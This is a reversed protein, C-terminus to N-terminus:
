CLNIKKEKSVKNLHRRELGMCYLGDSGLHTIVGDLDQAAIIENQCHKVIDFDFKYPDCGTSFSVSFFRSGKLYHRTKLFYSVGRLLLEKLIVISEKKIFLCVVAMGLYLRARFPRIKFADKYRDLWPEAKPLNLFRNIPQCGGNGRVFLYVQNYFCWKQSLFSKIALHLKQFIYIDKKSIPVDTQEILVDIIEDPMIYSSQKWDRAGGLFCITFLNVGNIFPNAAAFDILEKIARENLNRAITANFTTQIGLARLNELVQLKIDLYDQRRLARYSQRDFGDFQLNVRDLGAEKLKKLYNIDACKLGNTNITVVKGYKHFTRIIEDLDERCTPDGGSLIFFRKQSNKALQEIQAMSSEQGAMEQNQRGFCCITCDANCRYTPWFEYEPVEYHEDSLSFYYQELEAYCSPTSSLVIEFAGHRPCSKQMIMKSDKEVIRAEIVELCRPCVSQTKRILRQPTM